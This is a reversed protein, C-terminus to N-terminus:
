NRAKEYKLIIEAGFNHDAKEVTYVEKGRGNYDEHVTKSPGGYINCIIAPSKELIQRVKNSKKAPVYGIHVGDVVVKIANPDHPNDPEDELHVTSASVLYKYIPEDILYMDVLEMKTMDYADNEVALSDIIDKERFSIGAVKFNYYEYEPGEPKAAEPQPNPEEEAELLPAPEEKPAPRPAEIMNTNAKEIAPAPSQIHANKLQGKQSYKRSYMGLFIFFLGIIAFPAGLGPEGGIVMILALLLVLAAFVFCLIGLIKYVTKM